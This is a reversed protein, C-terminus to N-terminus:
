LLLMIDWAYNAIYEIIETPIKKNHLKMLEKKYLHHRSRSSFIKAFKVIDKRVSFALEERKYNFIPRYVEGINYGVCIYTENVWFAIGKLVKPHNKWIISKTWRKPYSNYIDMELVQSASAPSNISIGLVYGTYHNVEIKNTKVKYYRM